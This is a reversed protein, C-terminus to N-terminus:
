PEYRDRPFQRQVITFQPARICDFSPTDWLKSHMIVYYVDVATEMEIHQSHPM